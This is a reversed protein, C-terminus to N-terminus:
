VYNVQLLGWTSLPKYRLIIERFELRREDDIDVYDISVISGDTAYQASGGVFFYFPWSKADNSIYYEYEIEDVGSIGAFAFNGGAFALEAGAYMTQVSVTVIVDGNVVLEAKFAGAIANDLGAYANAGGAVMIYDSQFNKPDVAPSNSYVFVPFGARQLAEELEQRSGTNNQANIRSDL